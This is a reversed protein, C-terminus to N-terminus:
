ILFHNWVYSFHNRQWFCFDNLHVFHIWLTILLFLSKFLLSIFVSLCIPEWNGLTANFYELKVEMAAEDPFSTYLLDDHLFNSIFDIHYFFVDLCTLFATTYKGVLLAHGNDQLLVRSVRSIHEIAFKFMVLSMPAKSIMNYEDLFSYSVCDAHACM